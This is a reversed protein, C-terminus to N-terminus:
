LGVSQRLGPGRNSEIQIVPGTFKRQKVKAQHTTSNYSGILHTWVDPKIVDDTIVSFVPNQLRNRHFWRVKGDDIEFHYGGTSNMARFIFCALHLHVDFSIYPILISTTQAFATLKEVM